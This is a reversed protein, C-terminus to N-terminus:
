FESLFKEIMIVEEYSLRCYFVPALNLFCFMFVGHISVLILCGRAESLNLM